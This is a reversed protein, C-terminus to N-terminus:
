RKYIEIDERVEEWIGGKEELWLVWTGRLFVWRGDHSNLGQSELELAPVMTQGILICTKRILPHSLLPSMIWAWLREYCALSGYVKTRNRGLPLPQAARGRWSSEQKQKLEAGRPNEEMAEETSLMMKRYLRRPYAHTDVGLLEALREKGRSVGGSYVAKVQVAAPPTRSPLPLWGWCWGGWPSWWIRWGRRAATLQVM